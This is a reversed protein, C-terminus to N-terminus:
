EYMIETEIKKLTKNLLETNEIWPFHLTNELLYRTKVTYNDFLSGPCIKDKEASIIITNAPVNGKTKFINYFYRNGWEYYNYDFSNLDMMKYFDFENNKEVYYPAWAKFLNKFNTNNKSKEYEEELVQIIKKESESLNEFVKMALQFCDLNPSSCLLILKTYLSDNLELSQLLMGGFSHGVLICNELNTCLLKLDSKINSFINEDSIQMEYPPLKYLFINGSLPTDKLASELYEEGLGPGGPIFIWNVNSGEKIKKLISKCPLEINQPKKRFNTM